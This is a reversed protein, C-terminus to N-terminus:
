RRLTVTAQADVEACGGAACAAAFLMVTAKGGAFKGTSSFVEASWPHAAGDCAFV